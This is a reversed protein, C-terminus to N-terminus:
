ISSTMSRAALLAISAQVCARARAPDPGPGRGDELEASVVAPEFVATEMGVGLDPQDLDLIGPALEQADGEVVAAM